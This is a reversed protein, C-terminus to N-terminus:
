EKTTSLFQATPQPQKAEATQRRNDVRFILLLVVAALVNFFVFAALPTVVNSCSASEAFVLLPPVAFIYVIGALNNSICLVCGSTDEPVPFTAEAASEYAVPVLPVGVFGVTGFSVLLQLANGPALSLLLFAMAAVCLLVCLKLLLAYKRTRKMLYTMIASGLLGVVLLVGGAYGAVDPGYGCPGIIQGSLTIIASFLGTGIGYAVVLLAFNHNRIIEVSDNWLMRVAHEARARHAAATSEDYTLAAFSLHPTIAAGTDPSQLDPGTSEPLPAPTPPMPVSASAELLDPSQGRITNRQEVSASPPTPPCDRVWIGTAVAIVLSVVAQGLMWWQIDGPGGVTIGSVIAGIATGVVNSLVAITTAADREQVPFWDASIRAPANTFVPQALAGITQGLMTIAFGASPAQFAVLSGVYRLVGAIANSSAGVLLCRRLGFREMLYVSAFAGPVYAFLFVVSFWNIDAADVRYLQMAALYISSFSNWLLGNFANSLVFLALVTYRRSYKQYAPNM